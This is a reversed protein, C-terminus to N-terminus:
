GSDDNQSRNQARISDVFRRRAASFHERHEMWVGPGPGVHTKSLHKNVDMQLAELCESVEDAAAAVPSSAYLRVMGQLRTFRTHTATFREGFPDSGPDAAVAALWATVSDSAAGYFDAYVERRRWKEDHRRVATQEDKHAEIQQKAVLWTVSGGALAGGLGALAAVISPGLEAAM